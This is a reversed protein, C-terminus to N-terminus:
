SDERSAYRQRAGEGTLGVATGILGWSVGYGRLEDALQAMRDERAQVELAIKMLDAYTELADGSLRRAANPLLTAQGSPTKVVSMGGEDMWDDGFRAAYAM